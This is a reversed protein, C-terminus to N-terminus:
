KKSKPIYLRSGSADPDPDSYPGSGPDVIEVSWQQRLQGSYKEQRNFPEAGTRREVVALVMEAVGNVIRWYRGDEASAFYWNEGALNNDTAPQMCVLGPLDRPCDKGTLVTDNGLNVIATRFGTTTKLAWQQNRLGRYPEQTLVYSRKDAGHALSTLAKNSKRNVFKYRTGSVATEAQVALLEGLVIALSLLRFM